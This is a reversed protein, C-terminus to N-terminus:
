EAAGPTVSVPFSRRVLVFRGSFNWPVTVTAPADAAFPIRPRFPVLRRPVSPPRM